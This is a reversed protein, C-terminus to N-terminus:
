EVSRATQRNKRYQRYFPVVVAAVLVLALGTERRGGSRFLRWAQRLLAVEGTM